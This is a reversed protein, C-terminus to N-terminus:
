RRPAAFVIRSSPNCRTAWCRGNWCARPSPTRSSPPIPRASACRAWSRTKLNHACSTPLLLPRLPSPRSPPPLRTMSPLRTLSRRPPKKRRRGSGPACWPLLTQSAGVGGMIGGAGAAVIATDKAGELFEAGITEGNTPKVGFVRENGFQGTFTALESPVERLGASAMKNGLTALANKGFGQKVASEFANAVKDMGGLKEGLAEFTGQGLAFASANLPDVGAQRADDYSAFASIVAPFAIGGTLMAAGMQPLQALIQPGYKTAFKDLGSATPDAEVGAAAMEVGRQASTAIDRAGSAAGRLTSAADDAGLGAAVDAVLSIGGAAASRAQAGALDMGRGLAGSQSAEVLRGKAASARPATLTPDDALQATAKRSLREGQAPDFKGPKSQDVDLVSGSKERTVSFTSAGTKPTTPQFRPTLGDMPADDPIEERPATAKASLHGIIDAPEYGAKRAGDLDFGSQQSLYSAIEDDSYGAKRAGEVDFAM